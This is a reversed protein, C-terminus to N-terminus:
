PSGAGIGVVGEVSGDGPARGELDIGGVRVSVGGVRVSVGGMWSDTEEWEV